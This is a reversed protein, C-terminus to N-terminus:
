KKNKKPKLGWVEEHSIWKIKSSIDKMREEILIAFALDEMLEAIEKQNRTLTAM